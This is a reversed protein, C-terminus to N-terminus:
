CGIHDWAYPLEVIMINLLHHFKCKCCTFHGCQFVMKQNSLKEQCIPCTEEDIKSQCESRHENFNSISITEESLTSINSNEELPLKQKSKALGQFNAFLTLM